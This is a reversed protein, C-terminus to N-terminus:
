IVMDNTELLILFVIFCFLTLLIHCIIYVYIVYIINCITKKSILFLHDIEHELCGNSGAKDANQRPHWRGNGGLRDGGHALDKATQAM